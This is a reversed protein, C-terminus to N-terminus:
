YYGEFGRGRNAVKFALEWKRIVGYGVGGGFLGADLSCASQVHAQSPM